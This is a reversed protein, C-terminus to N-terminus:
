SRRSSTSQPLEGGGARRATGRSSRRRRAIQQAEDGVGQVEAALEPNKSPSRGLKMGPGPRM